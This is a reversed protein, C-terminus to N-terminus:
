CEIEFDLEGIEEFEFQIVVMEQILLFVCYMKEGFLVNMEYYGEDSICILDVCIGKFNLILNYVFVVFFVEM